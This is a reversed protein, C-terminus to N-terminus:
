IANKRLFQELVANFADPQDMPGLHGCGELVAAVFDRAFQEGGGFTATTFCLGLARV